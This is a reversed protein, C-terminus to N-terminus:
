LYKFRSKPRELFHCAEIYRTRTGILTGRYSHSQITDNGFYLSINTSVAHKEYGVEMRYTHLVM